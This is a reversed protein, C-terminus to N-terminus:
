HVQRISKEEVVFGRRGGAVEGIGGMKRWFAELLEALESWRESRQTGHVSASLFGHGVNPHKQKM